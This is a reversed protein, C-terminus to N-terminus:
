NTLTGSAPATGTIKVSIYYPSATQDLQMGTGTCTVTGSTLSCTVGPPNVAGPAPLPATVSVISPNLLNAPLPDTMTWPSTTSPGFPADINVWYTVAGGAAVTAPGYKLVRYDVQNLTTTVSSTNNVLNPDPVSQFVTATNTWSSTTATTPVVATVHIQVWYPATSFDPIMGTGSCNVSTGSVSCTVWSPNTSTITGQHVTVSTIQVNTLPAPLNDQLTWSNSTDGVNDVDLDYAVTDGPNATTPGYKLVRMDTGATAAQVAPGMALLLASILGLATLALWAARRPRTKKSTFM